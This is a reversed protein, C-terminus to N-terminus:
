RFAEANFRDYRRIQLAFSALVGYKKNSLKLTHRYEGNPMMTSSVYKKLLAIMPNDTDNHTYNLNYYGALVPCELPLGPVRQTFFQKAEEIIPTKMKAVKCVEVDSFSVLQRWNTTMKIFAKYDAKHLFSELIFIISIFKSFYLCIVIINTLNVLVTVRGGLTQITRSHSRIRYTYNSFVKPNMDMNEFKTM